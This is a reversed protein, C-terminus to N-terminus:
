LTFFPKEGGAESQETETASGARGAVAGIFHQVQMQGMEDESRDSADRRQLLSVAILHEKLVNDEPDDMGGRLRQRGVPREDWGAALAESLAAPDDPLAALPATAGYSLLPFFCLSNLLGTAFGEEWDEGQLFLLDDMPDACTRAYMWEFSPVSLMLWRCSTEYPGLLNADTYLSPSQHTELLCPLSQCIRFSYVQFLLLPM